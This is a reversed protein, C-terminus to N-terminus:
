PTVEFYYAEGAVLAISKSEQEPYKDWEKSGTAGNVFCLRVINDPHDDSSLWLEGIDDSAIYFVYNDTVPPILWGKMRIGYFDDIDFPAELFLGLRETRTADALTNAGSMLDSISIDGSIGTWTELTAGCYPNIECADMSYVPSSTMVFDNASPTASISPSPSKFVYIIDPEDDGAKDKNKQDLGLALAISFAVVMVVMTALLCRTRWHKWWPLPPEIPEAPTAIYVEEDRVLTAEPVLFTTDSEFDTRASRPPSYDRADEKEEEPAHADRNMTDTCSEFVPGSRPYTDVGGRDGGALFSSIQNSIPGTFAVAPVNEIEERPRQVIDFDEEMIGRTAEKSLADEFYLTAEFAGSDFPAPPTNDRTSEIQARSTSSAAWKQANGVEFETSDFPAPPSEDDSTSEIQARAISSAAWKEANGVEFEALDFPAPPPEEGDENGDDHNIHDFDDLLGEEGNIGGPPPFSSEESPSSSPLPPTSCAIGGEVDPCSETTPTTSM